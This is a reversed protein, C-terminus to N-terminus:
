HAINLKKTYVGRETQISVLYIGTAYSATQLVLQENTVVETYVLRGSADLVSIVSHKPLGSLAVWENAPNPRMSIQIVDQEAIGVNNVFVCNSAQTCDYQQNTLIV